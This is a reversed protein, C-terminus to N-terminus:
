CEEMRNLSQYEKIFACRARQLISETAKPSKEIVEAIQKISKDDVYKLLLIIRYHSLIKDLCNRVLRSKFSKEMQMDMDHLPDYLQVAEDIDVTEFEQRYQKRYFDNLKNRAIKYIWTRESCLGKFKYLGRFVAIFIDQTIDEAVAPDFGSRVYIFQYVEDVYSKYLKIFRQDKETNQSGM